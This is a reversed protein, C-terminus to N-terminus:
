WFILSTNLKQMKDNHFFARLSTKALILYNMGWVYLHFIPGLEEVDTKHKVVTRHLTFSITTTWLFSAVSFFQTTYGQVYCLFGKGPDRFCIVHNFIVYFFGLHLIYILHEVMYIWFCINIVAWVAKSIRCILFKHSANEETVACIFCKGHIELTQIGCIILRVHMISM